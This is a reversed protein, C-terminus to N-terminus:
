FDDWSEDTEVQVGLCPHSGPFPAPEGCGEKPCRKYRRQQQLKKNTVQAGKLGGRRSIAFGNAVAAANASSSEGNAISNRAFMAAAFPNRGKEMQSRSAPALSVGGGGVVVVVVIKVVVVSSLGRCAQHLTLHSAAKGAEEGMRPVEAQRSLFSLLNGLSVNAAREYLALLAHFVWGIDPNDQSFARAPCM